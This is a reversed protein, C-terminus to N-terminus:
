GGETDLTPTSATIALINRRRLELIVRPDTWYGTHGGRGIPHNDITLRNNPDAEITTGVFDDTRFINTWARVRTFLGSWVPAQWGPYHSPFYHQYLHSIPSGMTVLRVPRAGLRNALDSTMHALEDLAIVTGQSHGVVLIESVNRDLLYRLVSRFRQRIVHGGPRGLLSHRNAQQYHIVDGALDLGGRVAGAGLPALVAVVTAVHASVFDMGKLRQLLPPLDYDVLTCGTGILVVVAGLTATWMIGTALIPHFVVRTPTGDSANKLGLKRVALLLLMLLLMSAAMIWQTGEIHTTRKYVNDLLADSGLAKILLLWATPVATVWLVYQMALSAVTCDLPARLPGPRRADNTASWGLVLYFCVIIVIGILMPLFAVGLVLSLANGLLFWIQPDHFVEGPPGHRGSLLLFVALIWWALLMWPLIWGVRKGRRALWVGLFWALASAVAGVPLAWEPPPLNTTSDLSASLARATRHTLLVVLILLNAAVIPGGLWASGRTALFSLARTWPTERDPPQVSSEVVARMHVIIEIAGQLIGLFGEGLRSASGWFAEAFVVSHTQTRGRVVPMQFYRLANYHEPSEAKTGEGSEVVVEPLRHTEMPGAEILERKGGEVDDLNPDALGAVFDALAAGPKPDGIGHVVIVGLTHQVRTSSTFM